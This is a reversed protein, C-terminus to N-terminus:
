SSQSPQEKKKYQLMHSLTKDIIQNLKNCMQDSFEKFMNQASNNNKLILEVAVPKQLKQIICTFSIIPISSAPTKKLEEMMKDSISAERDLASMTPDFITKKNKRGYWLKFYGLCELITKTKNKTHVDSEVDCKQQKVERDMSELKVKFKYVREFIEKVLNLVTEYWDNITFHGRYIVNPQLVTNKPLGVKLFLEGKILMRVKAPKDLKTERTFLISFLTKYDNEQVEKCVERSTICHQQFFAVTRGNVRSTVNHSLEFPDQLCMPKDTQMLMPNQTERIYERYRFMTDPLEEASAFVTKPHAKGDLPCLVKSGLDFGAYFDFFEYLLSPISNENKTNQLKINEDYNVQWGQVFEPKCSSQLQVVTPVMAREPQQLFFIILLTLAYNSIKGMGAIGFLEAWFKIIIMLPKLRVDLSLYYKILHSNCVGLSNKFNIDCFINTPAHRFKIIPTKANPILVIDTFINNRKFLLSKGVRFIKKPTWEYPKTDDESEVIPLGIDIYVDLDSHFFSLGTVTSGFRHVKCNRFKIKFIQKLSACVSGYKAEVAVDSPQVANLFAILQSDFTTETEFIDKLDEYSLTISAQTVPTRENQYFKRPEIRLKHNDIFVPRSMLFDVTEREAFQILAYDRQCKHSEIFGYKLFFDIVQVSTFHPPWNSVFISREKIAKKFELFQLNKAHKKGTIHGQYAYDDALDIRCVECHKAM